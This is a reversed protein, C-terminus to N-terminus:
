IFFRNASMQQLYLLVPLTRSSSATTSKGTEMLWVWDGAGLTNTLKFNNQLLHKSLLKRHITKAKKKKKKLQWKLMGTAGLVM